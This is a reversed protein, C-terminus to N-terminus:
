RSQLQPNGNSLASTFRYPSRPTRANVIKKKLIIRLLELLDDSLLTEAFVNARIYKCARSM